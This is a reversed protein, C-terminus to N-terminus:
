SDAQNSGVTRLLPVSEWAAAIRGGPKMMVPLNVDGVGAITVEDSDEAEVALRQGPGLEELAVYEPDIIGLRDIILLLQQFEALLGEVRDIRAQETVVDTTQDAARVLRFLIEYKEAATPVGPEVDTSGAAPVLGFVNRVDEDLGDLSVSEAVMLFDARLQDTLSDAPLSERRFYLPVRAVKQERRREIEGSNIRQFDVAALIGYVPRDGHRWTFPTKWAQVVFALIVIALLCLSLRALVGRDRLSTTVRAVAGHSTGITRRATRHRRSHKQGILPM